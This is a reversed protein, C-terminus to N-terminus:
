QTSCSKQKSGEYEDNRPCVARGFDRVFEAIDIM